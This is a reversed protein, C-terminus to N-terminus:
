VLWPHGTARDRTETQLSISYHAGKVAPLTLLGEARWSVTRPATTKAIVIFRKQKGEAQICLRHLLLLLLSITGLKKKTKEKEQLM